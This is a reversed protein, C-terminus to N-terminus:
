KSMIFHEAAMLIIFAATSIPFLRSFCPNRPDSSELPLWPRFPQILLFSLQTPTKPNSPPVMWKPQQNPFRLAM